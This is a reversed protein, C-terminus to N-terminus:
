MTENVSSMNPALKVDPEWFLSSIPGLLTRRKESLHAQPAAGCIMIAGSDHGAIFARFSAATGLQPHTYIRRGEM